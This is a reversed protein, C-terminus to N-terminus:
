IQTFMRNRKTHLLNIAQELKGVANENSSLKRSLGIMSMLLFDLRHLENGLNLQNYFDVVLSNHIKNPSIKIYYQEDRIYSKTIEEKDPYIDDCSTAQVDFSSKKRNCDYCALVLNEINGAEVKTPFSAENIFHDVEFMIAPIIDISVGCYACKFNYAKMFEDKHNSGNVSVYNHMDKAKPHDKKVIKVVLDKRDNIGTLSKCYKTCRYDNTEM